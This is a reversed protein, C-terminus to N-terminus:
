TANQFILSPWPLRGTATQIDPNSRHESQLGQPMPSGTCNGYKSGAQFWGNKKQPSEVFLFFTLEGDERLVQKVVYDHWVGPEEEYDAKLDEFSEDRLTKVAEDSLDRKSMKNEKRLHVLLQDFVTISRGAVLEFSIQTTESLHTRCARCLKYQDSLHTFEFVFCFWTRCCVVCVHYHKQRDSEDTSNCISPLQPPLMLAIEDNTIDAVAGIVTLVQVEREKLDYCFRVFIM